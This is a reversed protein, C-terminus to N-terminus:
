SSQAADLLIPLEFYKTEYEPSYPKESLITTWQNTGNSDGNRHLFEIDGVEINLEITFKPPEFQGNAVMIQVNPSPSERMVLQQSLLHNERLDMEPIASSIACTDILGDIILEGFDM